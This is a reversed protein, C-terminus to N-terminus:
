NSEDCDELMVAKTGFHAIKQSLTADVWTDFGNEKAKNCFYIDEGSITQEQDNWNYFYWPQPLSKYVNSNVLVCGSGVAFVKHLGNQKNLRKEKNHEDMFAVPRYPRMRTSYSCAVIDKEHSLLDFFVSSPVHMDSDLWLIHTANIKLAQNTLINRQDAVVSGMCWLVEFDIEKKTLKSTIGVLSRAFAAHVLDRCPICIALKVKM